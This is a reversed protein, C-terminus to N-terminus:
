KIYKKIFDQMFRAKEEETAVEFRYGENSKRKTIEEELPYNYEDYYSSRTRVVGDEFSFYLWNFEDVELLITLIDAEREGEADTAGLDYVIKANVVKNIPTGGLGILGVEADSYLAKYDRSYNFNVGSILLTFPLQQALKIDTYVLSTALNEIFRGTEREGKESEDLLESISELFGRQQFEVNKSSATLFVLNEAVKALQAAPIVSMDVGMIIDTSVTRQRLNETWAGAMKVGLTKEPFNYPFRLFGQSTITNAADNFSVTSGKLVQNRLKAETGIRFEKKRRDFTLGGSASLVETDDEDEKAQLFNSYFIRNEPVYNLGVTLIENAENTLDDAIPIFVSDPNVITKVFTFWAGKFVPNESEIKVEGEFAMFKRSADLECSGRFFIRETLYFANSEPIPGSAVTTGESNVKINAFEVFQKKGNVEIYNYKGAGEYEQRSFIDIKADYIKHQKTERQAEVVANEITKILGNNQIIVQQTPPTIIADAVHINPVGNVTIEQKEISYYSDKATFKLSDQKSDVSVFLNDKQYTSIGALKLDNTARAFSGKVMTTRYKHIPFTALEPAAQKSEFSSTHMRVDYKISVNNAVFHVKTSDSPDTVIFDSNQTSFDMENFVISDGRVRVGGLVVEGDGIMGKPTISLTGTFKAQGGFITLAEYDSSLSLADKKTYWKYVASNADVQPFYVGGRYGRQLNFYNVQAMVSDFHFVFSDSKAVTGLYEMSGNGRLGSGDLIVESFFRGKNNYIRYGEPPSQKRFGLTFDEMVQLSDRFTPFIESSNFEGDFNLKTGDFDELSDLVFPDVAYFLKEKTYIGGEIEPKEWYLYSRSYSDFVPFFTYSSDQGSKNNPADIHIVGTVGEFVTNSLAKELNTPVYGPPPNRVLVFRISDISDCRISYSEYDFTFSPRTKQTSYFNVKGAAVLGGFQLNRNKQVSVKAGQPLVRLYVSDSLSFVPVGRLEINMTNLDMVAHAGTDVRSVIQIADFDKRKRAAKAYNMLKPLPTIQLTKKDYFIFGNGELEPLTREFAVKQDMLKYEALISSPFIPQDKHTEAFRYIAGIPNFQLLGKYSDFRDKKFYDFSEIASTKNEKDIFATFELNDTRLDWQISEFYLFYEHYSSTYPISRFNSRRPKKLIVTSDRDTYLMDMAPHYISDKDSTYLTAVLNEGVMKELDLAFAEGQMKMVTQGKRLIEIKAPIHQQVKDFVLADGWDNVPAGDEGVPDDSDFSAEKTEATAWEQDGWESAKKEDSKLEKTGYEYTSSSSKIPEPDVWVDYATGIKRLGRLTFGGEYRVNPIFNEIVVGGEYSRFFPYNATNISKFGVNRDEFRGLLPEKIISHYYLVVSDAEVLGYNLNVKYDKLECYVDKPDLGVKSWDVRGGTGVFSQSLLHFDGKTNYIHTSDSLSTNSYTLSTNSYRFVPASYSGDGDKITIFELSPNTQSISWNFKARSIPEGEPLYELMSNFYRSCRGPELSTIVQLSVDWFQSPSVKVHSADNKLASVVMAYNALDPVTRLKRSVMLNIQTIFQEQEQPSLRGSSWLAQAETAAIRGKENKTQELVNVFETIFKAPDTAFFSVGQAFAPSGSACIFLLLVIRLLKM